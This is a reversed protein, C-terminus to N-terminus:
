SQERNGKWEKGTLRKYEAYALAMCDHEEAEGGTWYEEDCWLCHYYRDPVTVVVEGVEINIPEDIYHVQKTEKECNPCFGFYEEKM